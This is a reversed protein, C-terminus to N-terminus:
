ERVGGHAVRRDLTTDEVASLQSPCPELSGRLLDDILNAAKRLLVNLFDAAKSREPVSFADNEWIVYLAVAEICGM